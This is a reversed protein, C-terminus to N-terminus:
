AFTATYDGKLGTKLEESRPFLYQFTITGSAGDNGSLKGKSSEVVYDFTRNTAANSTTPLTLKMTLLSLGITLSSERGKSSGTVAAGVEAGELRDFPLPSKEGTRAKILYFIGGAITTGILKTSGTLKGPLLRLLYQWTSGSEKKLLQTEVNGNIEVGALSIKEFARVPKQAMELHAASVLKPHVPLASLLTLSELRELPPRLARQKSMTAGRM